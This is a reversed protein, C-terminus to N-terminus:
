GRVVIEGFSGLKFIPLEKLVYDTFDAFDATGNSKTLRVWDLTTM